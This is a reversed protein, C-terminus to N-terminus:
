PPNPARSLYTHGTPTTTAIVSPHGGSGFQLTEVKWGPLERIHNHRECVGRGNDVTTEGGDRYPTIHNLTAYRPPATPSGAPAAM